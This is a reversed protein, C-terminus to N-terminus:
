DVRKTIINAQFMVTASTANVPSFTVPMHGPLFVLKLLEPAFRHHTPLVGLPGYRTGTTTSMVHGGTDSTQLYCYATYFCRETTPSYEHDPKIAYTCMNSFEVDVSLNNGPLILYRDKQGCDFHNVMIDVFQSGVLRAMKMGEQTYNKGRRTWGWHTTDKEAANEAAIVTKVHEETLHLESTFLWDPLLPEANYSTSTLKM